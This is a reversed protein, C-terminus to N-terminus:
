AFLNRYLNINVEDELWRRNLEKKGAALHNKWKTEDTTLSKIADYWLGEQNVVTCLGDNLDYPGIGSGISSYIAPLGVASYELLKLDSKGYNFSNDAVPCLAVDANINDLTNAYSYFDTWQHFEYKGILEPPMTGFFVWEFEDKTKKILPLLFELDGGKGIHSASGTWLIRPKNGKGRKNRQGKGDWLFRPLFNPIVVSNDIGFKDKYYDQLYRTSFTVKDVMKMIYLLNNRKTETYFQYAIINSPQIEHVVDDLDYILKCPSQTRALIKKYEYIVKKQAETVQRQFRIYKSKSIYNLDFLFESMNTINFNYKSHLYDFPIYTRHYGCGNKDSPFSIIATDPKPQQQLNPHNM